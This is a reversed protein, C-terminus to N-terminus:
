RDERGVAKDKSKANMHEHLTKSPKFIPLFKEPVNIKEGTRPNRGTYANYRRVSFSGLGRIEVREGKILSEKIADFFIDVSPKIQQYFDQLQADELTDTTYSYRIYDVENLTLLIYGQMLFLAELTGLQTFALVGTKYQSYFTCVVGFMAAFVGFLLLQPPLEPMLASVSLIILPTNLMDLGHDLFEGLPSGTGTEKARMGDLHDFLLYIHICAFIVITRYSPSPVPIYGFATLFGIVVALFSLITITNATVARPFLKLFYQAYYTKYYPLLLSNDTCNYKYDPPFIGNRADAQLILPYLEHIVTKYEAEFDAEMFLVDKPILVSKVAKLMMLWQTLDEHECMQKATSFGKRASAGEPSAPDGLLRNMIRRVLDHQKPAFHVIGSAEGICPLGGVLEMSLGKGLFSPYKGAGYVRIEEQDQHINESIFLSNEDGTCANIIRHMFEAEYIIDADMLLTHSTGDLPNFASSACFQFSHLSGSKGIDPAENKVFVVSNKLRDRFKQELHSVVVCIQPMRWGGTLSRPSIKIVPPLQKRKFESDHILKVVKRVVSMEYGERILEEPAKFDHTIKELIEDLLAYPPLTDSDAQNPKLEASPERSIVSVPIVPAKKNIYEALMFVHTKWMDGIVALAGNTDGYITCYGTLLESKNGTSLVLAGLQNAIAMILTGRVRSQINEKTRESTHRDFIRDLEKNYTNKLTDIPIEYRMVALNKILTDADSKTEASNYESPMTVAYVNEKGLAEAALCLVVASDIGGSVGVCVKAVNNKLCYEKLGYVLAQHLEKM